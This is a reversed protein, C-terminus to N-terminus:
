IRLPKQKGQELQVKLHVEWIGIYLVLWHEASAFIFILNM